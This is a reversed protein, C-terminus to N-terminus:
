LQITLWVHFDLQAVVQLIALHATDLNHLILQAPTKPQSEVNLALM